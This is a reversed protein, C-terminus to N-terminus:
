DGGPLRPRAAAVRAQQRETATLTRPKKKDDKKAYAAYWGLQGSRGGSPDGFLVIENQGPPFSITLLQLAFNKLRLLYQIGHPDTDDVTIQIGGFSLKLVGEIPIEPRSSTSGPLKMGVYVAPKDTSQGWCAALSVTLGAGSALAGLTGLDLQFMLAYWPAVLTSASLPTRVSILGLNGPSSEGTQQVLGTLNLPFHNFLSDPRATSRSLDFALAGADFVFTKDTPSALAFTMYLSLSSFALGGPVSPSDGAASGFSFVDLEPFDHFRLSGAFSFKTVVRAPDQSQLTIWQTSDVEVVDLASNRLTFIDTGQRNFLYVPRGNQRQMSGNLVLNNGRVSPELKSFAGFLQNLMVEIQTSFSTLASNTFLAQIALVKYAYPLNDFYLDQPDLYHILGFMSADEQVLVGDQNHVSALNVGLHHAFLPQDLGAVLGILDPPFSNADLTVRLFLVGSWRPDEVIRVFNAFSADTKAREKADDLIAILDLQVNRITSTGDGYGDAAEPWSWTSTDRALEDVSKAGYKFLFITKSVPWASPNLNFTWGDIVLSFPPQPTTDELFVDPNSIVAFLQSSQLAAKFDGAVNQLALAQTGGTLRAITLVEWYRLAQDLQLLLGQPTAGLRSGTPTGSETPQLFATLNRRRVRSVVDNELQEAVEADGHAVYAYPLMPFITATGGGPPVIAAPFTGAFIEMYYLFDEQTDDADLGPQLQAQHFTSQRPQAYYSLSGGGAPTMAAYATTGLSTLAPADDPRQTQGFAPAYAPQGPYFVVTTTLNTSDGTYELGSVGAMLRSVGSSGSGAISPTFPGQLTLYLPDDDSPVTRRPSVNFALSAGNPFATSVSPTLAVQQGYVTRFASGIAAASGGPPVLGFYTRSPVLVNIPDLWAWVGIPGGLTLDFAPLRIARVFGPFSADDIFTSFGTDLATLTADNGVAFPFSLCGALAGTFPLAAVGTTSPITVAGNQALLWVGQASPATITFGADDGSIAVSAGGQIGAGYNRMPIEAVRAMTGTASGTQQNVQLFANTWDNPPDNPNAIWLFRVPQGGVFQRVNAVFTAADITLPQGLFLYIGPTATWTQQLTLSLASTQVNPLFSIGYGAPTGSVPLGFLPEEASARTFNPMTM